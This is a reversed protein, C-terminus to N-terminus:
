RARKSVQRSPPILRSFQTFSPGFVVHAFLTARPAHDPEYLAAPKIKWGQARLKTQEERTITRYKKVM